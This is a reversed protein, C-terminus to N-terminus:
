VVVATCVSHFLLLFFMGTDPPSCNFAESAYVCRGMITALPAYEESSLVGGLGKSLFLNWLGAAKAKEKLRELPMWPEWRRESFVHKFYDDELPMVEERMFKKLRDGLSDDAGNRKEVYKETDSETAQSDLATIGAQAFFHVQKGLLEALSSSANGQRARALVGCLVASLRFLSVAVYVPVLNKVKEVEVKNMGARTVFDNVLQAVSPVGNPIPSPMVISQLVPIRTAQPPLSFPVLLQTFDALPTGLSVLEWDLVAVCVLKGNINDSSDSWRQFVLNDIRFDGHVLTMNKQKNDLYVPHRSLRTHLESLQPYDIDPFNDTTRRLQMQWADVQKKVWSPSPRSLSGLGSVNVDINALLRLVKGAESYVQSRDKVSLSPFNLDNFIYGNVYQMIYFQQRPLISSGNACFAYVIPVPVSTYMHLAHLVKFERDLRHAGPLLQGPPQARLVFTFHISGTEYSFLTLKYTPNSQGHSFQQAHLRTTPSSLIRSAVPLTNGNTAPNFNVAQIWTLLSQAQIDTFASPSNLDRQQQERSSLTDDAGM